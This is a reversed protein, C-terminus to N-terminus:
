RTGRGIVASNKKTICTQVVRHPRLARTAFWEEDSVRAVVALAYRAGLVAVAVCGDAVAVVERQAVDRVFQQTHPPASRGLGHPDLQDVFSRFRLCYAVSAEIQRHALLALLTDRAVKAARLVSALRTPRALAVAVAVHAM